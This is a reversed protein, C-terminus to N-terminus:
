SMGILSKILRSDDINEANLQKKGEVLKPMAVDNPSISIMRM